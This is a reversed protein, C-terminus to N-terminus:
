SLCSPIERVSRDKGMSAVANAAAKSAERMPLCNSAILGGTKFLLKHKCAPGDRAVLIPLISERSKLIGSNLAMGM